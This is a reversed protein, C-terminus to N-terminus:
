SYFRFTDKSTQPGKKITSENGGVRTRSFALNEKYILISLGKEDGAHECNVFM